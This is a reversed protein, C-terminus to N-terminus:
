PGLIKWQQDTETYVFGGGTLTFGNMLMMFVQGTSTNRWLIDARGDGNYDGTAVIKWDANPEGYFVSGGTITTGNMLMMFVDGTTTNRWLVDARGDGNFDAAAQIQWATNPESYIVGGGTVTTGNMLLVFVDGTAVNRWLVDARGDGDFDAVKQIQWTTNPESYIVGGGVVNLGNMLLLFVDGTANNKWLLDANGDGNFDGAGVVKWSTNPETYITGEASVATGNMLLGYVQGTTDHQWVIDARGDNNLDGVAAVNWNLDTEQDVLGSTGLTMGNMQMQYLMGTAINYWLLDSRGDGNFDSAAKTPVAPPTDLLKEVAFGRPYGEYMALGFVYISNGPGLALGYGYDDGNAGGDASRTWLSEGTTGRYKSTRINLGSAADWTHGSVLVNGSADVRIGTGQNPKNGATGELASWQIAGTAAALRATHMQLQRVGQLVTFRYGTVYVNGQADTAVGNVAGFATDTSAWLQAGTTGHYKLALGRSAGNVGAVIVHGEGDVVVAAGGGESGSIDFDALWLQAGTAGNLKITRISRSPFGSASNHGTVVVHGEPTIALAVAVGSHTTDFSTVWLQAGTAGDYKVVRMPSGNSGWTPGTGAVIVNGAADVAIAHGAETDKVFDMDLTASWLREGNAASYKETRISGAPWNDLVQGTVFV